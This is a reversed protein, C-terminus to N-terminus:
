GCFKLLNKYKRNLKDIEKKFVHVSTAHQLEISLEDWLKTGIYYPSKEYKPTIRTPVKFVIKAANRTDRAPIKCLEMEKIKCVHRWIYIMAQGNDWLLRFAHM